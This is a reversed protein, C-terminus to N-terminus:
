SASLHMRMKELNEPLGDIVYKKAPNGLLSGIAGGIIGGILGQGIGRIEPGWDNCSGDDCEPDSNSGIIYGLVMGTAAGVIIGAGKLIHGGANVKKIKVVRIDSAAILLLSDTDKEKLIVNSEGITRLIGKRHEGTLLQVDFFYNRNKQNQAYLSINPHLMWLLGLVALHISKM